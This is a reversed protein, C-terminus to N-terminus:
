DPKEHPVLIKTYVGGSDPTKQDRMFFRVSYGYAQRIRRKLYQIDLTKLSASLEM